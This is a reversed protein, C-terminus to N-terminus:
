GRGGGRRRNPNGRAAMLYAWSFTLATNVADFAAIRVVGEAGYVRAVARFRLVQQLRRQLFMAPGALPNSAAIVVLVAALGTLGTARELIPSAAAM